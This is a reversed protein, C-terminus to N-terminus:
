LILALPVMGQKILVNAVIQMLIGIGVGINTNRKYETLM